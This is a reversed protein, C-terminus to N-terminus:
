EQRVEVKTLPKLAPGSMVTGHIDFRSGHCTCDWSNEDRNWKLACGMHTCVPKVAHLIGGNDRYVGIRKGDVEAIGGENRGIGSLREDAMTLHTLFNGAIDVTNVAFSKAQLGIDFRNLAFADQYESTGV